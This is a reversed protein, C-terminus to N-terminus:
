KNLEINSDIVIEDSVVATPFSPAIGFDTRKVTGKIKFGAVTKKNMPNQVVGNLILDMSIPKTVGHMTLNGNLKYNKGDIKTISASKFSLTPYKVADFFKESKLDNDRYENETNISNIDATLGIQADSFDDKSSVVTVDFSKFKGEVDSVLLHTAIFGLKAHNKDLTWSQASVFIVTVLALSLILTKKM